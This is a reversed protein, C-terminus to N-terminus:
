NDDFSHPFVEETVEHIIGFEVARSAQMPSDARYIIRAMHESQGTAKCFRKVYDAEEAITNNVFFACTEPDLTISRAVESRGHHFCIKAFPTAVRFKCSLLLEAAASYAKNEVVGMIPVNIKLLGNIFTTLIDTNGGTSDILLILGDPKQKQRFAKRTQSKVSTELSPDFRGYVTVIAPNIAPFLEAKQLM